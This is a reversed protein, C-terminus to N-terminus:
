TVDPRNKLKEILEAQKDTAPTINIDSTTKQDIKESLGLDRAIIVPNLFGSAAGEFKQNYIVQCIKNYIPFFEKYNEDNGYNYFTKRDIDLFLCFASETFPRLHPVDVKLGSGFAKVEILPNDEVWQFYECAAAWLEDPSKFEKKRGTATANKWFQNGKPAAM